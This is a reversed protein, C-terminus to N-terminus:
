AAPYHPVQNNNRSRSVRTQQGAFVKQMTMGVAFAYSIDTRSLSDDALLLAPGIYADLQAIHALESAFIHRRDYVATNAYEGMKATLKLHIKRLQIVDLNLGNLHQRFPESRYFSKQRALLMAVECGLYFAARRLPHTLLDPHQQDFSEPLLGVPELHTPEMGSFSFLKLQHFFRLLVFTHRVHRSFSDPLEGDLQFASRISAMFARLLQERDLSQQYFVAEVIRFFYPRFAWKSRGKGSVQDAFYDKIFALTVGFREYHGDETSVNGMLARYCTEVSTKVTLIQKIRTPLIDAIHLRIAFQAQNEEYFFVSYSVPSQNLVDTNGIASLISEHNIFTATSRDPSSVTLKYQLFFEAWFASAQADSVPQLFRPMVFYNLGFFSRTLRDFVLRKAGELTKAVDPAVPFMKYSETGNFGNRSFSAREVTFGLTNVRGWVEPAPEYSVACVKDTASSKRWYTAYPTKDVVFLERFHAYEGFFHGDIKITFLYRLAPDFSFRQLQREIQDIQEDNIFDHNYKKVSQRIKKVMTRISERQGDITPQLHLYFTPVLNTANAKAERFLYKDVLAPNFAEVTLGPLLHGNLIEASVVRAETRLNPFPNSWPHFYAKYDDLQALLKGATYLSKIM